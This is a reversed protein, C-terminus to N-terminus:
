RIPNCSEPVKPHSISVCTLIFSDDNHSQARLHVFDSFYYFRKLNHEIITASVSINYFRRPLVFLFAFYIFIGDCYM